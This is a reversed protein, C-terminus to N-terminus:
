ANCVFVIALPPDLNLSAVRLHQIDRSLGDRFLGDWKTKGEM